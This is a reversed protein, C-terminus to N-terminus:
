IEILVEKIKNLLNEIFERTESHLIMKNKNYEYWSLIETLNGKKFSFAFWDCLMEVAYKEPMKLPKIEDDVLIWYNWHHPNSHIHHLWAEEFAATVESSRYKGYFYDEYAKFEYKSFKSMDHQYIIAEWEFNPEIIANEVLWNYAKLVNARHEEIYKKYNNPLTM